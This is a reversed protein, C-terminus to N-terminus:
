RRSRRLAYASGAMLAVGGVLMEGSVALGYPPTNKAADTSPAVHAPQYAPLAAHGPVPAVGVSLSVGLLLALVVQQM